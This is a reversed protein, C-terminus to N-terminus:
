CTTLCATQQRFRRIDFAADDDNDWIRKLSAESLYSWGQREAQTDLLDTLSFLIDLAKEIIQDENLTKTQALRKLNNAHDISIRFCKEVTTAYESM